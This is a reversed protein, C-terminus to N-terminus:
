PSTLTNNKKRKICFRILQMSSFRRTSSNNYYYLYFENRYINHVYKKLCILHCFMIVRFSIFCMIVIIFRDFRFYIMTSKPLDLKVLKYYYLCGFLSLYVHAMLIFSTTFLRTNLNITM